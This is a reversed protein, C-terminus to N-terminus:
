RSAVSADNATSTNCMELKVTRRPIHVLSNDDGWAQAFRGSWWVSEFV